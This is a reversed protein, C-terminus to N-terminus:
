TAIMQGDDMQTLKTYWTRNWLGMSNVEPDRHGPYDLPHYTDKVKLCHCPNVELKWWELKTNHNGREENMAKMCNQFMKHLFKWGLVYTFPKINTPYWNEYLLRNIFEQVQIFYCNETHVIFSYNIAVFKFGFIWSFQYRQFYAISKFLADSVLITHSCTSSTVSRTNHIMGGSFSEERAM